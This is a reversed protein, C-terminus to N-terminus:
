NTKKKEYCIYNKQKRLTMRLIRAMQSKKICEFYIDLNQQINITFTIIMM